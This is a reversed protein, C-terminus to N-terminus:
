NIGTPRLTWFGEGWSLDLGGKALAARMQETEAGAHVIVAAEVRSLSVLEWGRVQPVRGLRERVALWQDLGSLPVLASLTGAAARTQGGSDRWDAELARSLDKAVRALLAEPSEGEGQRYTLSDFPKPATPAARLALDLDRGRVTAIAVLVDPSRWRAGLAQMALADGAQAQIANLTQVDGLDGLPVVVPVLGGGTLGTWAARWPNPDDWLAARGDAGVFVPVLVVPRGRGEILAIGVGQLLRRVAAPQFRVTFTGLYRNGGLRENEVIFDRVYQTADAKPLRPRDAPASLRELLTAFAQRQAEAIAQDKAGQPSAGSVDVEVGQVAFVDFAGQARASGGWELLLAVAVAVAGLRCLSPM